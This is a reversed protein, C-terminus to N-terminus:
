EIKQMRRSQKDILSKREVEKDQAAAPLFALEPPLDGFETQPSVDAHMWENRMAPDGPKM